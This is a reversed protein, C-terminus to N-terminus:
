KTVTVYITFGVDNAILYDVPVGKTGETNYNLGWKRRDVSFDESAISVSSDAVFVNALFT